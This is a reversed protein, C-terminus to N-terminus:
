PDEPFNEELEQPTKKRRRRKKKYVARTRPNPAKDEETDTSKTTKPSRRKSKRNSRKQKNNTNQERFQKDSWARRLEAVRKVTLAPYTNVITDVDFGSDFLSLIESETLLPSMVTPNGM